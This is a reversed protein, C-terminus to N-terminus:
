QLRTTSGIRADKGVTLTDPEQLHPPRELVADPGLRAQGLKVGHPYAGVVADFGIMSQFGIRFRPEVFELQVATHAPRSETLLNELAKARRPSERYCAPVFVSFRHAYFHFPDRLPDQLTKLQTVDLQANEDLQSRNVIRKGWLQAESGLRGAGLFLWRRLQFHELILPPPRWAPIPNVEPACNSPLPICRRQAQPQRCCDLARDMGLHLLLQRWLGYRTGRIHFLRAAEKLIRRRQEVQLQRDLTVGIWSALYSLFDMRGPRSSAPASCPDFLEAQLAITNELSRFTTDFIALFRDTFDASLPEEGFVAPLHQRLSVRPFEVRVHHLAPTALGTGALRLRLWLFRGGGSRVLCDWQGDDMRTATQWPSWEQAHLLELPQPEEATFTAVCIRTEEPIQASLVVRHWVCRYLKSDLPESIYEGDRAFMRVPPRPPAIAEGRRDFAYEGADGPCIPTSSESCLPGLHLNGAHDVAFPLEPFDGALLEPRLPLAIPRGTTDTIRVPPDSGPRLAYIREHCDIAVHTVPGFGSLCAEYSGLRHFRHICGNAPDSVYVRGRRDFAVGYPEWTNALPVGAPPSWFGRLVFGGLSFVVLRHNGTDCVFLDGDRIGIGRPERLRRPDPHAKQSPEFLCEANKADATKSPGGFCPVVRFRCECRDFHKLQRQEPDLLYIDGTPGIAVHGPVTLGGFSGSDEALNRGSHPIVALTLSGDGRTSELRSLEAARWGVRGNLLWWTPDHPPQPVPPYQPQMIM